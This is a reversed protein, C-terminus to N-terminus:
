QREDPIRSVIDPLRIEFSTYVGHESGVSIDGNIKRLTEKVIFLGLGSGKSLETARFYMNFIKDFYEERIGIGNDSITLKWLHAEKICDFRIWSSSKSTDAYKIGNSILNHLVVKLRSRDTQLLTDEPVNNIYDIRSAESWFALEAIVEEILKRLLFKEAKVLVHTNRAYDVMSKIVAEQKMVSMKIYDIYGFIKAPDKEIYILEVLGRISKLPASLDHSASYVFRDLEFVTKNLDGITRHLMETREDVTKELYSNIEKLQERAQILRDQQEIIQENQATLEENQAQIENNKELIEHQSDQLLMNISNIDNIRLQLLENTENLKKTRKDVQDELQKQQRIFFSVRLRHFVLMMAVALVVLSLKFLKTQWWAPVIVISLVHVHSFTDVANGSRAKVEFSYSGPHLNTYSVLRQGTTHQWEDNFGVLRYLYETDQSFDYKLAAFEIALSNQNYRLRLDRITTINEPLAKSGAVPEVNNILLRTFVVPSDDRAERYHEPSFFNLGSINGFVFDGNRRTTVCNKNFQSATLGNAKTFNIFRREKEDLMSIGANHSVWVRGLSDSRVAYISSNTLASEEGYLTTRRSVIDYKVLGLNPVGVWLVHKKDYYLTSVTTSADIFELPINKYITEGKVLFNLGGVEKGIWLNGVSDMCLANVRDILNANVVSSSIHRAENTAPIYRFLGRDFTGIWINGSPDADLSIIESGIDPSSGPSTIRTCLFSNANMRWLGKGWTGLWLNQRTDFAMSKIKDIEPPVPVREAPEFSGVNAPQRYLGGGDLGIWLNGKGDEQLANVNGFGSGDNTTVIRLAGFNMSHKDYVNIGDYYTGVWLKDTNDVYISKIVNGHLGTQNTKDPLYTTVTLNMFPNVNNGVVSLGNDTAIWINGAADGTISAVFNSRLSKSDRGSLIRRSKKTAPDYVLLGNVWSGIWILKRLRDVYIAQINKEISGIEHPYFIRHMVDYYYLGQTNISVLLTADFNEVLTSIRIGSDKMTDIPLSVKEFHMSDPDGVSARSLNDSGVYLFDNKGEIITRIAVRATSDSHTPVEIHKFSDHARKYVYLGGDLTGVWLNHHSDEFLCLVFNSGLSTSDFKINRYVKMSYGDYRHLGDETGIWMFGQHDKLMARVNGNRLGDEQAIHNFFVAQASLDLAIFYLVLFVLHRM